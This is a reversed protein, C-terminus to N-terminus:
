SNSTFLAFEDNFLVRGLGVADGFSLRAKGRLLRSLRHRSVEHGEESLRASLAKVSLEQEVRRQDLAPALSTISADPNLPRQLQRSTM